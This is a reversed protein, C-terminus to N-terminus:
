DALLKRLLAQAEPSDWEAAGEVAGVPVGDPGILVTTPMAKVGFHRALRGGEDVYRELAELGRAEFFPDVQRFGGRDESVAVVEVGEPGLATQLRDLSPMEAVCPPCWTAWFNLVVVKGAFDQLSVDRIMGGAKHKLPLDPVPEANEYIVYGEGFAEAAAPGGLGGAGPGALLLAALALARLPKTSLRTM